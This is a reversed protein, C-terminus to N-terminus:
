GEGDDKVIRHVLAQIQLKVGPKGGKPGVLRGSMYFFGYWDLLLVDPLTRSDPETWLLKCWTKFTENKCVDHAQVETGYEKIWERLMKRFKTERGEGTWQAWLSDRRERFAAIADELAFSVKKTAKGPSESETNVPLKACM